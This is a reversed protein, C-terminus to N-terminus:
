ITAKAFYLTNELNQSPSEVHLPIGLHIQALPQNMYLYPQHPRNCPSRMGSPILDSKDGTSGLDQAMGAMKASFSRGDNKGLQDCGLEIAPIFPEKGIGAVGGTRLFGLPTPRLNLRKIRGDNALWRCCSGGTRATHTAGTGEANADCRSVFASWGLATGPQLEIRRSHCPSAFRQSRSNM